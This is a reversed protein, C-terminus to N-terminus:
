SRNELLDLLAAVDAALFADGHERGDGVCHVEGLVVDGLELYLLKEGEEIFKDVKSSQQLRRSLTLRRLKAGSCSLIWVRVVQTM